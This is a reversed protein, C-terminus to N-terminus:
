SEHRPLLARLKKNFVEDPRSFGLVLKQISLQVQFSNSLLNVEPGILLAIGIKLFCNVLRTSSM